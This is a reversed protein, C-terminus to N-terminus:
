HIKYASFYKEVFDIKTLCFARNQLYNLIGADTRFSFVLKYSCLLQGSEGYRRNQQQRGYKGDGLLPCGAAALQARIQHTRGTHLRCELLSLGDRTELTRYETVATRAGKEPARRVYVQNKAADKFLYDKLIGQAPRPTGHVVTLYYKDIERDRIKQNM